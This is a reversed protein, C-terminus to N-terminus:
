RSRPASRDGLVAHRAGHFCSGDGDFCATEGDGIISRQAPSLFLGYSERLLIPPLIGFLLLVKREFYHSMLLWIGVLMRVDGVLPSREALFIGVAILSKCRWVAHELWRFSAVANLHEM